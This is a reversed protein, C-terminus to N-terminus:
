KCFQALLTQAPAYGVQAAQQWDACAGARDGAANKAMGRNCRYNPADPKLQIAKDFAALAEPFKGMSAYANGTNNIADTYNPNIKLAANYAEIAEKMRGLPALSNGKRFYHEPDAKAQIAKEFAELAREHQGAGAYAMGLSAQIRDVETKPSLQGYKEIDAIAKAFDGKTLYVQSRGYWADAFDPKIETARTFMQIADDYRKMKNFAVALNFNADFYVPDAKISQSYAQAANEYDQLDDYALGLNSWSLADGPHKATNNEWLAVSSQWHTNQIFTLAACVAVFGAALYPLLSRLSRAREGSEIDSYTKGMIYLLGLYPIYTFRDVMFAKGAGKFQLVFMINVLFFVFGFVLTTNSKRREWILWVILALILPTIYFFKPLDGTKPYPYYASLNVPFLFKELYNWLSATAFFFRETLPYGTDKFGEAEGLFHIGVLGFVLSLAFFPAKELWVKMSKWDRGALWDLALMSLPLSVAQIKSFLALLGFLLTLLYHKTQGNQAYKWYAHLAAIYFLGYLVDKRETVWAVSESRMPHIGFLATAFALGWGKLGLARLFFFAMATAGLHLLLNDLHYLFPQFNEVSMQGPKVITDFSHELCYTLIVLPSYNGHTHGTFIQALDISGLPKVMPNLWLYGHDDWNVFGASLVNSFVLFTLVLIGGLIAMDPIPTQTKAPAVPPTPKANKTKKSM